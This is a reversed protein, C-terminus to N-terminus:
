VQFRIKLVDLPQCIARTVVGSSAGAIPYVHAPLDKADSSYGVMSTFTRVRPQTELTVSTHAAFQILDTTQFCTCVMSLTGNTM